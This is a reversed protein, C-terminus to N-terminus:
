TAASRRAPRAVRTRRHVTSRSRPDLGKMLDEYAKGGWDGTIEDIFKQGFGTSGRPNPMLSWTAPSGLVQPNWRFSWADGLPGAARRSRVAGAM